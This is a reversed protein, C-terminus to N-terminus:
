YQFSGFLYNITDIYTSFKVLDFIQVVNQTNNNWVKLAPVVSGGAASSSATDKNDSTPILSKLLSTNLVTTTYMHYKVKGLLLLKRSFIGYWRSTKQIELRFVRWQDSYVNTRNIIFNVYDEETMEDKHIRLTQLNPCNKSILLLINSKAVKYLTLRKLNVFQDNKACQFLPTFEVFPSVGRFELELNELNSQDAAITIAHCVVTPKSVEIKLCLSTLNTCARLLDYLPQQTGNGIYNSSFLLLNYQLFLLGFPTM